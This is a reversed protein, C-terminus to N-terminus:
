IYVQVYNKVHIHTYIHIDRVINGIYIYICMYM